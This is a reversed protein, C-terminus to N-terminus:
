KSIRLIFVGVLLMWIHLLAGSFTLFIGLKIDLFELLNILLFFAAILGYYGLWKPLITYRIILFNASVLWIVAFLSVGLLEGIGGAYSNLLVYFHNLVNKSEASTTPDVYTHALVPITFLWRVIGLTRAMTSLLSFGVGIKFIVNKTDGNVIVLTALYALPFFLISYSLYIGYGIMVIPYNEVILPLIVEAPEDLSAPWNIANGLLLMPLLILLSEMILFFATYARIRKGISNGVHKPRNM